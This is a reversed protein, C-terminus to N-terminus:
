PMYPKYQLYDTTKQSAKIRDLGLQGLYHLVASRCLAQLTKPVPLQYIRVHKKTRLAMKRSCLSFVPCYNIYCDTPTAFDITVIKLRDLTDSDYILLARDSEFGESDQLIVLPVIFAGDPSYVCDLLFPGAIASKEDEQPIKIQKSNINYTKIYGDFESFQFSRVNVLWLRSASYRPDFLAMPAGCYAQLGSIQHELEFMNGHFNHDFAAPRRSYIQVDCHMDKGPLSTMDQGSTSLLLCARTVDPSLQCQYLTFPSSIELTFNIEQSPQKNVDLTSHKSTTSHKPKAATQSSATSTSEDSLYMVYETHDSLSGISLLLGVHGLKCMVAKVVSGKELLDALLPCGDYRLCAAVHDHLRCVLMPNSDKKQEVELWHQTLSEGGTVDRGDTKTNCYEFPTFSSSDSVYLFYLYPTFSSTQFMCSIYILHSHHATQFMCFFLSLLHSHHATQFMCFIYPTLFTNFLAIQSSFDM